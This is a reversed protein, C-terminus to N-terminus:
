YEEKVPVWEKRIKSKQEDSLKKKIKDAPIKLIMNPQIGHVADPNIDYIDTPRIMYKKSIMMVTEGMEVTHPLVEKEEKKIEEPTNDQALSINVFAFLAIIGFLLKKRM